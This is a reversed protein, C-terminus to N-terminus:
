ELGWGGVRRRSNKCERCYRGSQKYRLTNEASYQHGRPCATAAAHRAAPGIGRLTNTQHTVAELHDPNVCAPVRCLHDLILGTPVPGKAWDYALRHARRMTGVSFYFKGYGKENRYATWIWCGNPGNKDVKSWFREEVPTRTYIRPM